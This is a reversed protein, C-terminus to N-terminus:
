QYIGPVMKGDMDNPLPMGFLTLIVAATDTVTVPAKIEGPVIRPGMIMWPITMEEPTSGGHNTGRMGHDSTIIITTKELEGNKQLAQMLSGIYADVDQLAKKYFASDHGFAHGAADPDKFHVFLFDYDRMSVNEIARQIMSRSSMDVVEGEFLSDPKLFFYFKNKAAMWKVVKGRDRLFDFITEKKLYNGPKWANHMVGHKEPTYGTFMSTHAPLTYSPMITQAAYTFAGRETISHLVPLDMDRVFDARAGDMSILIVRPRQEAIISYLFFFAGVAGVIIVVLGWKRLLM